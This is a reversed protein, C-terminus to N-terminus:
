AALPLSMIGKKDHPSAKKLSLGSASDFVLVLMQGDPFEANPFSLRVDPYPMFRNIIGYQSALFLIKNYIDPTIQNLNSPVDNLISSYLANLKQSYENYTISYGRGPTIKLYQEDLTSKDSPILNASERILDQLAKFIQPLKKDIMLRYYILGANLDLSQTENPDPPDSAVKEISSAASPTSPKNVFSLQPSQPSHENPTVQIIEELNIGKTYCPLTEKSFLVPLLQHPLLGGPDFIMEMDKWRGPDASLARLKEAAQLTAEEFRLRIEEESEIVGAQILAATLGWLRYREVMQERQRALDLGELEKALTDFPTPLPLEAESGAVAQDVAGRVQAGALGGEDLPVAHENTEPTTIPM